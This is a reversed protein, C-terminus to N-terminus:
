GIAYGTDLGNVCCKIRAELYPTEELVMRIKVQRGENRFQVMQASTLSPTPLQRYVMQNNLMAM